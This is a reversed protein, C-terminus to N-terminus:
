RIRIGFIRAAYVQDVQAFDPRHNGMRAIGIVAHWGIRRVARVDVLDAVHLDIDGISARAGRPFYVIQEEIM